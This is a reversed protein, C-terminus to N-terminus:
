RMWDKSNSRDFVSPPQEARPYEYTGYRTETRERPPEIAPKSLDPAANSYPKAAPPAPKPPTLDIPERKEPTVFTIKITDDSAFDNAVPLPQWGEFSWYFRNRLGARIAWDRGERLAEYYKSSILQKLRAGGEALERRFVRAFTAKAIPQDTNPNRVIQRMEDWSMRLGALAMVMRKQDATAVFAPKGGHLGSNTRRHPRKTKNAGRKNGQNNSAM